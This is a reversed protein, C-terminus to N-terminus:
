RRIDMRTSEKAEVVTGVVRWDDVGREEVAADFLGGESTARRPAAAANEVRFRIDRATREGRRAHGFYFEPSRPAVDALVDAELALTTVPRTADNSYVTVTRRVPGAASATECSLRVEGEGGPQIADAPTASARCDCGSRLSALQLPRAGPNHFAFAHEIETGVQIQGADHSSEDFVIRPGSPPVGEPGRCSALALVLLLLAIL